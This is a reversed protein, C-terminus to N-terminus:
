RYKERSRHPNGGTFAEDYKRIEWALRTGFMILPVAIQIWVLPGSIQYSILSGGSGLALTSLAALFIRTM